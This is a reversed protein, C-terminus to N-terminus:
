TQGGNTHCPFPVGQRGANVLRTLVTRAQRLQERTVQGPTWFRKECVRLWDRPYMRGLAESEERFEALVPNQKSTNM